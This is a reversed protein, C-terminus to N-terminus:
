PEPAIARGFSRNSYLLPEEVGSVAASEVSALLVHHDGAEISETLRCCLYAVSDAILIPGTPSREIEVNTFKHGEKSAFVLALDASAEQLINVTFGRSAMVAPLTNSGNDICVLVLPPELSVASFASVTLGYPQGDVSTTIVTVGSPFRAMVERYTDSDIQMAMRQVTCVM